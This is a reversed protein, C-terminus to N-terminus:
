WFQDFYRAFDTHIRGRLIFYNQAYEHSSFKVPTVVLVNAVKDNLIQPSGPQGRITEEVM